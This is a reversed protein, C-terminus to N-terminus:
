HCDVAGGDLASIWSVSPRATEVGESWSSQWAVSGGADGGIRAIKINGPPTHDQSYNRYSRVCFTKNTMEVSAPPPWVLFKGVGPDQAVFLVNRVSAE